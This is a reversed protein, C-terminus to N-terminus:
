TIRVSLKKRIKPNSNEFEIDFFDDLTEKITNNIIYRIEANKIPKPIKNKVKKLDSKVVQIGLKQNHPL